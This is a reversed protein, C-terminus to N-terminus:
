REVQDAAAVTKRPPTTAVLPAMIKQMRAKVPEPVGEAHEAADAVAHPDYAAYRCMLSIFWLTEQMTAEVSKQFVPRFTKALPKLSGSDAKVFGDLQHKVYQKGDREQFFVYRLVLVSRTNLTKGLLPSRYQGEAYIVALDPRRYIFQWRGSSAHGDSGEFQQPAVEKLSADSAGLTKWLELTLVPQELLLLYLEPDTAFVEGRSRRYVTPHQVVDETKARAQEDIEDWPILARAEDITSTTATSTAPDAGAAGTASVILAAALVLWGHPRRDIENALM